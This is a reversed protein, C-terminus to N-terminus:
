SRVGSTAQDPNSGIKRTSLWEKALETLELADLLYTAMEGEDDVFLSRKGRSAESVSDWEFKKYRHSIQQLRGDAIAVTEYAAKQLAHAQSRPLGSDDDGRGDSVELLATAASLLNPYGSNGDASYLRRRAWEGGPGNPLQTPPTVVYPRMSLRAKGDRTTMRGRIDALDAGSSDFLVHFDLASCPTGKVKDKPAKASKTLQEALAYAQHFPFHPKVIAVGAAAAFKKEELRPLLRGLDDKLGQESQEEFACLYAAAFPVAREGECIVTLDDGGLVVPLVPVRQRKGSARRDAVQEDLESGWIALMAIEAARKSWSDIADSFKRMAELYGVVDIDHALNKRFNAFVSGLGNGDAHVIARWNGSLEPEDEFDALGKYLRVGPVADTIRKWASQYAGRKALVMSSAGGRLNKDPHPVAAPYGSSSCEEVFPLRAFRANPAPLESAITAVRVHVAKIAEELSGLEQKEIACHAGRVVVGPCEILARRTVAEIIAEATAETDSGVIAKGSTAVGITTRRQLKLRTIEEEVFRDGVRHILDSAGINERLRNTQFITVQNSATEILLVHKITM